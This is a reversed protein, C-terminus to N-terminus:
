HDICHRSWPVAHLRAESIPAGCDECRGYTGLAVRDLAAEIEALEHDFTDLLEQDLEWSAGGVTSDGGVSVLVRREVLGSTRTEVLHDRATTLRRVNVEHM